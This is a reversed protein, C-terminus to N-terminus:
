VRWFWLCLWEHWNPELLGCVRRQAITAAKLKQIPIFSIEVSKIPFIVHFFSKASMSLSRLDNKLFHSVISTKAMWVLRHLLYNENYQNEEPKWSIVDDGDGYYHKCQDSHKHFTMLRQRRVFVSCSKKLPYFQDFRLVHTHIFQLWNIKIQIVDLHPTMRHHLISYKIWHRCNINQTHTNQDASM